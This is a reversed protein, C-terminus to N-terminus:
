LRGLVCCIVDPPASQLEFAGLDQAGYRNPYSADPLDVIRTALDRTVGAQFSPPAYELAPSDIRLRLNGAAADVFRPDATSLTPDAPIQALQNVISYRIRQAPIAFGQAIIPQAVAPQWIISHTVLMEDSSRLVSGSMANQAFSVAGMQVGHDIGLEPDITAASFPVINQILDTTANNHHIDMGEFRLVTGGARQAGVRVITYGINGNMTAGGLSILTRFPASAPLEDVVLVAAGHQYAGNNAQAVNNSLRNCQAARACPAAPGGAGMFLRTLRQANRAVAAFGGGGGRAVNGDVISDRVFADSDEVYVGGGVGGATNANIAVPAGFENRLTDLTSGNFLHIGGGNASATNLAVAGAFPFAGNSEIFVQGRNAAIGGGSAASNNTVRSNAGSLSVSAGDVFVGGGAVSAINNDISTNNGLDLIVNAFGNFGSRVSVGAGSRARNATVRVNNLTVHLNTQAFINLGGGDSLNDGGRIEVDSLSVVGPGSIRLVAAAVGGTGNIVTRIGDPLVSACTAFGGEIRVDLNAALDVVVAAQGTWAQSRTIRVTDAGPNARANDLAAQISSHTCGSGLGVVFLAARASHSVGLVMGAALALRAAAHWHGQQM